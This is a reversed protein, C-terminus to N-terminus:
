RAPGTETSGEGERGVEAYGPAETRFRALREAGAADIVLESIRCAM